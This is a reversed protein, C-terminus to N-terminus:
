GELGPGPRLWIDGHPVPQDPEVDRTKALELVAQFLGVLRPRTRPPAFAASFPMGGSARVQALVDAMHVHLPTHDAVISQPQAAMTERMLRGFASVLDWLEVPRVPAAGRSPEPTPLRGHRKMQEDACAELAAAAEKVHKYLLLQKVLERRPDEAAEGGAEEPRPLLMRSKIEMLKSAFVIFEGAREVDIIKLADLYRAFQEAIRAIPIDLIDVEDRKVLYLLLDTPGGFEELDVVYDGEADMAPLM